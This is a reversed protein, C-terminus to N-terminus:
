NRPRAHDVRLQRGHFEHGNLADIAADCSNKDVFECFGMGLFLKYTIVVYEYM